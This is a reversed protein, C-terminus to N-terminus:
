HGREMLIEERNLWQERLWQLAKDRDTFLKTRIFPKNIQMYFNGIIRQGLSRSYLAKAVTIGAFERSAILERAEKSFSTLDESSVLVAYPQNKMLDLNTKRLEYFDEPEIYSGDKFTNEVIGVELM